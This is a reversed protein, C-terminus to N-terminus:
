ASLLTQSAVRKEGRLIASLTAVEPAHELEFVLGEIKAINQTSL